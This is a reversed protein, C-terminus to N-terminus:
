NINQLDFDDDVLLQNFGKRYKLSKNKVNTDVYLFSYNESTAKRFIEKLDEKDMDSCHDSLIMNLCRQSPIDFIIFTTCNQRIEKPVAFYSQALYIVSANKHRGRIYMEIMPRQDKELLMDDFIILNRKEKDIDDLPVMDKIHSRFIGIPLDGVEQIDPDEEITTIFEQLWKYKDQDLHKTYVYLKDFDLYRVIMNILVNTKGSGSGGCMLMRFPSDPMFCCKKEKKKKDNNCVDDFNIINFEECNNQQSQINIKKSKRPM